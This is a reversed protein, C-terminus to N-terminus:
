YAEAAASLARSIRRGRRPYKERIRRRAEALESRYGGKSGRSMLYFIVIAGGGIMAWTTWSQNSAWTSLQSPIATISSLDFGLGGMGAGGTACNICGLSPNLRLANFPVPYSGPVLEGRGSAQPIVRLANFPVQYAGSVFEGLM